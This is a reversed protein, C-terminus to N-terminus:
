GEQMKLLMVEFALAPNVNRDLNERTDNIINIIGNLKNFSFINALEKIALLKDINIILNEEEVEKYIITDRIYSLFATLIEYFNDKQNSLKKEYKILEETKASNLKLLIELTIDRIDKFNNDKIFKEAKGPIGDSFALIVKIQDMLLDSYNKSLFEKMEDINLNKLKHIQCRSKITDLIVELNECLLLITVNIPPEEITKLFANQAQVTMKHAHYIIIVKKDGEFPKKNIEEILTRISSVGITSKNKDIQWEVLDVYQRDENEGLIMLGINRALISKGIGDEGVLIHAHSLKDLQIAKTIQNKINSHGIIDMFSM